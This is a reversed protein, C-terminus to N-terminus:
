RHRIIECDTYWLGDAGPRFAIVRGIWGRTFRRPALLVELTLYDGRAPPRRLGVQFASETLEFLPVM